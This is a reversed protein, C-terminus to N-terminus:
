KKLKEIEQQIVRRRNFGTNEILLKELREILVEKTEEVLEINVSYKRYSLFNIVSPENVKLQNVTYSDNLQRFTEFEIKM